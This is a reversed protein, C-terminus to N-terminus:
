KSKFYRNPWTRDQKSHLYGLVLIIVRNNIATTSDAGSIIKQSYKFYLYYNNRCM